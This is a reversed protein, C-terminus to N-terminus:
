SFFSLNPFVGADWIEVEQSVQKKPISANPSLEMQPRCIANITEVKEM